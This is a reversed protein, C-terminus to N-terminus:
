TMNIGAIAEEVAVTIEDLYEASDRCFINSGDKRDKETQPLKEKLSFPSLASM